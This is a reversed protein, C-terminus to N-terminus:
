RTPRAPHSAPAVESSASGYQDYAWVVASVTMPGAGFGIWPGFMADEGLRLRLELARAAQRQVLFGRIRAQPRAARVRDQMALAARVM